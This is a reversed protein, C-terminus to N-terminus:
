IEIEVTGEFAKHVTTANQEAWLNAETDKPSHEGSHMSADGAKSIPVLVTDANAFRYFDMVGTDCLGHHPLQLIDCKLEKGFRWATLLLSRRFADGTFIVKKSEGTVSFILSCVNANQQGKFITCDDPTYIFHLELEDVSLRENFVPKKISAGLVKAIEQMDKLASACIHSGENNVFEEPFYYVLEKVYIRAYLESNKCIDRLAYYHDGHPHTVIWKEVTPMKGEAYQELLAILAEADESNGGDIVVFSGSNTKIIYGMGAAPWGVAGGFAGDYLSAKTCFQILKAM